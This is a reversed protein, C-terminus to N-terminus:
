DSEECAEIFSKLAEVLADADREKVADLIAEAHITLEDGYDDDLGYDDKEKKGKKGLAILIGGGKM